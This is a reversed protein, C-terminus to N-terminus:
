GTVQLKLRIFESHPVYILEAVRRILAEEYKDLHGDAYAVQWMAGILHRKREDDYHENVLQIFPFLSISEEVEAEALAVLTEVAEPALGFRERLAQVLTRSEAKDLVYDARSVEIMLAAAALHIRTESDGKEDDPDLNASFFQKIRDIM